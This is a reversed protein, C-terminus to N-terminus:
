PTKVRGIALPGAGYEYYGYYYCHLYGYYCPLGPTAAGLGLDKPTLDLVALEPYAPGSGLRRLCQVYPLSYPILSPWFSMKLIECTQPLLGRDWLLMHFTIGYLKHRGGFNTTTAMDEYSNPSRPDFRGMPWRGM